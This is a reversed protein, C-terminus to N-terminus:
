DLIQIYYKIIVNLLSSCCIMCHLLLIKTINPIKANLFVYVIFQNDCYILWYITEARIFPSISSWLSPENCWRESSEVGTKKTLQSLLSRIFRICPITSYIHRYVSLVPKMHWKIGKLYLLPKQHGMLQLPFLVSRDAWQIGSYFYTRRWICANNRGNPPCNWGYCNTILSQVCKAHAVQM